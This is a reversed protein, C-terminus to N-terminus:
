GRRGNAEARALLVVAHCAVARGQGVADERENTKAKVSIREPAIGLCEALNREMAELHPGLKPEELLVSADINLPVWRRERVLDAAEVLFRRSDADRYAPDTDPYHRGIDGAKIAGLLADVVAHMLVDADSHGVAGREAAICVGGIRLPRGPELRHIDYGQGIRLEPLATV